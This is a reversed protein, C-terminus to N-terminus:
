KALFPTRPTPKYRNPLIPLFFVRFFACKKLLFASNKLLFVGNKLLFVGTKLVKKIAKKAVFADAKTLVEAKTFVVASLDASLSRCFSFFPWRNVGGMASPRSSCPTKLRKTRSIQTKKFIKVNKQL